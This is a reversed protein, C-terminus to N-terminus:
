QQASKFYKGTAPDYYCSTVPDFLLEVESDEGWGNKQSKEASETEDAQFDYSQLDTAASLSLRGFEEEFSEELAALQARAKKELELIDRIDTEPQWLQDLAKEELAEDMQPLPTENEDIIIEEVTPAESQDNLIKCIEADSQFVRESEQQGHLLSEASCPAEGEQEPTMPRQDGGATKHVQFSAREHEELIEIADVLSGTSRTSAEEDDDSVDVFAQREPASGLEPFSNSM